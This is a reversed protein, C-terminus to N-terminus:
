GSELCSIVEKSVSTKGIDIDYTDTVVKFDEDIIAIRGNYVNSLLALESNVVKSDLNNLYDESDLNARLIDCQNKVSSERLSVARNKYSRSVVNTAIICPVIGILILIVM